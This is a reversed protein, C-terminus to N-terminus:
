VDVWVMKSNFFDSFLQFFTPFYNGLVRTLICVHDLSFSIAAGVSFGFYFKWVSELIHLEQTPFFLFIASFHTGSVRILISWCYFILLVDEGM